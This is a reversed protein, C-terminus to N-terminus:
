NNISEYNELLLITAVKNDSSAPFPKPRYANGEDFSVLSTSVLRGVEGNDFPGADEEVEDRCFAAWDAYEPM